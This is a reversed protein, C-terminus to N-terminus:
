FEGFPCSPVSVEKCGNMADNQSGKWFTVLMPLTVCLIESLTTIAAQIQGGYQHVECLNLPMRTIM